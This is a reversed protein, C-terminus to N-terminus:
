RRSMWWAVVALAGVWVAVVFAAGVRSTPRRARVVAQARFEEMLGPPMLRVTLLIGAPVIILDDVYGLVPVFDPILDIPSLVYLGAFIVTGLYIAMNAPRPANLFASLLALPLFLWRIWSIIVAIALRRSGSAGTASALAPTAVLRLARTPADVLRVQPPGRRIQM